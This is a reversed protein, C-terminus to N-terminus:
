QSGATVQVEVEDGEEMADWTAQDISVDYVKNWDRPLNASSVVGQQIYDFSRVLKEVDRAGISVPLSHFATLVKETVRRADRFATLLLSVGLYVKEVQAQDVQDHHKADVLFEYPDRSLRSRFDSWKKGRDRHGDPMPGPQDTSAFLFICEAM